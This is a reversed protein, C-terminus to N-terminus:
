KKEGERVKEKPDNLDEVRLNLELAKRDDSKSVIVHFKKHGAIYDFRDGRKPLKDLEIAAWGNATTANIDAEEGFFDFVKEINASGMIRYSGNQMLTIDRDPADDSEDYIEGVLEEVIDEITVLGATGGYEDLVIAMRCKSEQLKKLLEAAKMTEAVYLVPKVMEGPKVDHERHYIYNYFDKRNLIGFIGDLDDEYVPLRSFGTDRFVKDIQEISDDEEIAEIDVRPTLVDQAELESFSIANQILESQNEDIGGTVFAEDVITVLEDETITKDSGTRFIVSLLQRWKGFIYNLPMLVIRLLGILPASFMAFREPYQKALSKPTIEGFILVIVTTFVTAVTPGYKGYLSIFLSTAVATTAINVLNNGILITSLLSDYNRELKLVRQAQEDGSDAKNKIRIRNLSTFATETASFYASCILLLAIGIVSPMISHGDM